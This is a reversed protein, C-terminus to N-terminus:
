GVPRTSSPSPHGAASIGAGVDRRYEGLDDVVLAPMPGLPVEDGAVGRDGVLDGADAASAVARGLLPQLVALALAMAASCGWLWAPRDRPTADRGAPRHGLRRGLLHRVGRPLACQWGAARARRGGRLPARAPAPRGRELDGRGGRLRDHRRRGRGPGDRGRAPRVRRGDRPVTDTVLRPHGTPGAGHGPRLRGAAVGDTRCPLGRELLTLPLGVMAQMYLTAFATGALWMLLLRRDRWPSGVATGRGSSPRGAPVVVAVVAAAALCSVADAVLLWRLDFAALGAALLGAAVGAVALATGLLSYARPRQEPPCLDAVIAQSPPEYLEFVLGLLTVSLAAALLTPSAAFALQAVACGVLGLLMTPRRGWRDALVGGALRSPISALGFSAVVLGATTM